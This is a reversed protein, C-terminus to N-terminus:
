NCAHLQNIANACVCIELSNPFARSWVRLSSQFKGMYSLIPIKWVLGLDLHRNGMYANGFVKGLECEAYPTSPIDLVHTSGLAGLACVGHLYGVYGGLTNTWMPHDVGLALDVPSLGHDVLPVRGPRGLHDVTRNM